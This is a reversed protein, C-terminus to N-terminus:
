LRDREFSVGHTVAVWERVGESRTEAVSVIATIMLTLADVGM